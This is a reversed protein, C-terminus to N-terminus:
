ALIGFLEFGCFMIIKFSRLGELHVRYTLNSNYLEQEYWM